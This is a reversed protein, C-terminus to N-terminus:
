LIITELSRCDFFNPFCQNVDIQNCYDLSCNRTSVPIISLVWFNNWEFFFFSDYLTNALSDFNTAIIHLKQPVYINAQELGTFMNSWIYVNKIESVGSNWVRQKYIFIYLMPTYIEKPIIMHALELPFLQKTFM